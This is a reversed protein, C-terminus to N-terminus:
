FTIQAKALSGDAMTGTVSIVSGTMGASFNISNVLTAVAGPNLTVNTIDLLTGSVASGSWVNVGGITILQVVSGVTGGTWSITLKDLTIPSGTSQANVITLGQMFKAGTFLAVSGANFLFNRGQNFPSNLEVSTAVDTTATFHSFSTPQTQSVTFAVGVAHTQNNVTRLDTFVGNSVAIQNSTLPITAGVGQKITVTSGTFSIITPNLGMNRNALSVQTATVSNIELADSLEYRIRALVGRATEDTKKMAIAKERSHLIDFSYYMAGTVFISVLAIYIILEVLTFGKGLSYYFNGSLLKSKNKKIKVNNRM